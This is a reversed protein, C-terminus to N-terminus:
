CPTVFYESQSLAGRDHLYLWRPAFIKKTHKNRKEKNQTVELALPSPFEYQKTYTNNLTGVYIYAM